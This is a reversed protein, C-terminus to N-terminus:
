AADVKDMLRELFLAVQEGDATMEASILRVASRKHAPLGTLDMIRTKRLLQVCAAAQSMESPTLM